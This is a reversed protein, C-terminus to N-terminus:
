NAAPAPGNYRVSGGGIYGVTAAIGVPGFAGRYRLATDITNVRRNLEAANSSSTTADCGLPSNAGILAGGVGAGGGASVGYPCNGPGANVAGTNPEYAIGFDFGAYQPSLYVVKSTSYTAGVDGFPWTVQTGGTFFGPLDGNWGGENFNEMTGTLMLSIPGDTSGYRVFGLQDTGLYATERRWYLAGRSRNSTSPSGFTGGAGGPAAGTDQRIELSAGYRLGNAAMGDFGPYIRAYEGMSYNALKANSQPSGLSTTSGAVPTVTTNRGSDSGAYFNVALRVNLRVSITGPAPSTGPVSSGFSPTTIPTGTNVNAFQASATTALGLSGAVVAASALLLKRM